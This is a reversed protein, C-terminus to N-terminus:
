MRIRFTAFFWIAALLLGILLVVPILGWWYSHRILWWGLVVLGATLVGCITIVIQDETM